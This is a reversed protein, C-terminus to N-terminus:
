WSDLDEEPEEYDSALFEVAHTACFPVGERDLTLAPLGCEHCTTRYVPVKTTM